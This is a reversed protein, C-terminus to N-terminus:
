WIQFAVFYKKRSSWNQPNEPDDTDYWDVLITGDDLKEPIIPMTPGKELTAATYAQELDRRTAIKELVVRTDVRTLETRTTVVRDLDLDLDKETARSRPPLIEEISEPKHAPAEEPSPKETTEVHSLSAKKEETAGSEAPLPQDLFHQHADQTYHYPCQFDPKEEPYLLTKNRTAFRILQGLASDRVLAGM